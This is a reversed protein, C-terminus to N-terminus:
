TNWVSFSTTPLCLTEKDLAEQPSSPKLNVAMLLISTSTTSICRLILESINKPFGFHDLVLRVFSWELRDYAKELDIKIVMFGERGKRRKLSHILEQAIIVNDSSRRGVM